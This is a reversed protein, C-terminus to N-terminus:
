FGTWNGVNRDHAVRPDDPTTPKEDARVAANSAGDAPPLAIKVISWGEGEVEQPRWRHTARDPHEAALRACERDAEERTVSGAYGSARGARNSAAVEFVQGLVDVLRDAEV